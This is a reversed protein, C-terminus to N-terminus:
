FHPFNYPIQPLSSLNSVKSVSQRSTTRHSTTPNPSLTFFLCALVQQNTLTHVAWKSILTAETEKEADFSDGERKRYLSFSNIEEDRGQKKRQSKSPYPTPQIRSKQTSSITLLIITPPLWKNTPQNCYTYSKPPPNTFTTPSTTAASHFFKRNESSTM